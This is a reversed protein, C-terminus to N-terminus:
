PKPVSDCASKVVPNVFFPPLIVPDSFAGSPLANSPWPVEQLMSANLETGFRLPQKAVVVTQAAVQTKNADLNKARVNAKNNLWVQAIFVALLGFVVAFGIM